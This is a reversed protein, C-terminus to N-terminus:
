KQLTPLQPPNIQLYKIAIGQDLFKKEYTTQIGYTQELLPSAYLNDTENVINWAMGKLVDRTFEFLFKSDTKLHIIGGPKLIKAYIELFRPATLRRKADRKKPRPDPFTIWIESVEGEGFHDELNQVPVRLFGVNKLNEEEARRSGRWIRSGKIDIGIFNRDPFLQAMQVTYDGHGCGVELVIAQEEPFFEQNWKHQIAGFIAKGPEIVNERQANEDFRVLKKRSM